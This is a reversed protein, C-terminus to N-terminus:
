QSRDVTQNSAEAEIEALDHDVMMEVLTEFSTTPSWGLRERAQHRRRYRTSRPPASSSPSSRSWCAGTRPSARRRSDPGSWRLPLGGARFRSRLVRAGLAIRGTAIVYDDPEEAQLM